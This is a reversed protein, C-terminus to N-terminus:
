CSFQAVTSEFLSLAIVAQGSTDIAEHGGPLGFHESPNPRHTVGTGGELSIDVSCHERGTTTDHNNNNKTM